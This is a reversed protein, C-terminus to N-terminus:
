PTTRWAGHYRSPTLPRPLSPITKPARVDSKRLPTDQTVYKGPLVISFTRVIDKKIKCRQNLQVQGGTNKSSLSFSHGSFNKVVEVSFHLAAEHQPVNKGSRRPCRINPAIKIVFPLCVSHQCHVLFFAAPVPQFVGEAELNSAGPVCPAASARPLSALAKISEWDRWRPPRPVLAM